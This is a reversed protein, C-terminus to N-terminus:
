SRSAVRSSPKTGSTETETSTPLSSIYATIGSSTLEWARLASAMELFGNALDKPAVWVISTFFILASMVEMESDEDLIKAKVAQDYTSQKWGKDTASIVMTLRSIENILGQRVIEWTGKETAIKKLAAYALQPASLAVHASGAEGFLKTFVAGLEEYFQEFVLRPIPTSYIHLQGGAPADITIALDLKKTIKMPHNRFHFFGQIVLAKM